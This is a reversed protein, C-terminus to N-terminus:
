RLVDVPNTRGARAAPILCGAIGALLLVLGAGTSRHEERAAVARQFEIEESIERDVRGPLFTNRLRNWLSM